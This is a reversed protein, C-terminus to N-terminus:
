FYYKQRRKELRCRNLYEFTYYVKNILYGMKILKIKLLLKRESPDPVKPMLSLLEKYKKNSNRSLIISQVIQFYFKWVAECISNKVANIKYLGIAKTLIYYSDYAIKYYKKSLSNKRLRYNLLVRPIRVGKNLKQSARIMFDLDEATELNENFFIGRISEKKFFRNGLFWSEDAYNICSRCFYKKIIEDKNLIQKEPITKDNNYTRKDFSRFSCVGYDADISVLENVFCYICDKEIYDDSDLFYLYKVDDSLISLAANRASSVGGNKKHITVIWDNNKAWKDLIYGSLDTSGDDVCIAIINKYSQQKISLLCQPLFKEVNFISVVIAVKPNKEEM